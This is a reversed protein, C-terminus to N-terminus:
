FRKNLQIGVYRPSVQVVGSLRAGRKQHLFDLSFLAAGAGLGLLGAALTVAGPIVYNKSTPMPTDLYPTDEYSEGLDPGEIGRSLLAAGAVTAGLGLGMAVVGVVGRPTFRYEFRPPEDDELEPGQGPALLPDPGFDPIHGHEDYLAMLQMSRSFVLSVLREDTCLECHIPPLEVEGYVGVMDVHLEYDLNDADYSLIEVTMTRRDATTSTCSLDRAALKPEIAGFFTRELSDGGEDALVSADVVLDICELSSEGSVVTEDSAAPPTVEVEVEAPLSAAEVRPSSVLLVFSMAVFGVHNSRGRQSEARM